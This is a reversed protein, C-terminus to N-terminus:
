DDDWNHNLSAVRGITSGLYQFYTKAGHFFVVVEPSRNTMPRHLLTLIVMTSSRPEKLLTQDYIHKRM